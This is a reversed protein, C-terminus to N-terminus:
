GRGRIFSPTGCSLASLVKTAYAFDYGAGPRVSALAVTAGRQWRAAREPVQNGLIVIPPRENEEQARYRM